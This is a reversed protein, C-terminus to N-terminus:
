DRNEVNLQKRKSKKEMKNKKKLFMKVKKKTDGLM